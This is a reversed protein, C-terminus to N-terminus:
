AAKKGVARKIGFEYTLHSWPESMITGDPAEAGAPNTVFEGVLSPKVAFVADDHLHPDGKVFVHTILREYGPANILFHVHAPRITGRKAARVLDGVPGDVPISYFKPVITRFHFKGQADARFRARLDTTEGLEPKQMDYLGDEDAQWVDIEAGPIMLPIVVDSVAGPKPTGRAEISM